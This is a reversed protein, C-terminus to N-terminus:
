PAAIAHAIMTSGEFVAKDLVNRDDVFVFDFQKNDNVDSHLMVIFMTGPTPEEDVTISIDHNAGDQLYTAGVYVEGVPKGDKFPHMVLWGSGDIQVESFTFTSGHRLVDAVVIWNAAGNGLAVAPAADATADAASSMWYIRIPELTEEIFVIEYAEHPSPECAANSRKPGGLISCEGSGVDRVSDSISECQEDLVPWEQLLYALARSQVTTLESATLECPAPTESSEQVSACGGILAFLVFSVSCAVLSRM